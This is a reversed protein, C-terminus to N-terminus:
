LPKLKFQTFVYKLSTGIAFMEDDSVETHIAVGQLRTSNNDLVWLSGSDGNDTLLSNEAMKENNQRVVIRWNNISVAEIIGFTVSTSIGSKKVLDDVVPSKAFALSSSFKFIHSSDLDSRASLPFAVIDRERDVISNFKNAVGIINRSNEIGPQIIAGGIGNEFEGFIVHHCSIGFKNGDVDKVICSLTGANNALDSNQIEIGGQLKDFRKRHENQRKTGQLEIVDTKIGAIESPIKSVKGSLKEIETVKLKKKVIFRICIEGTVSNKERGYGIEVDLINNLLEKNSQLYVKVKKIIASQDKLNM